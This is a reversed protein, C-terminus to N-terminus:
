DSESSNNFATVLFNNAADQSLTTAISFSTAGGNLQQTHLISEGSISGDNNADSYVRVLANAEATGVISFTAQNVTTAAAPSTVTPAATNDNDAITITTTSPAGITVGTLTSTLTATFNESSEVDSDDDITISFTLEDSNSATTPFSQTSNVLATYDDPATATGNSTNIVAPIAVELGGAPINSIAAEIDATGGGESVSYTAQDFSITVSENDTITVTASSPSGINVGSQSSTLDATFAHDSEFVNDDLIPINANTQSGNSASTLFSGNVAGATYDNGATATGDSPTVTFNVVVELGGSPVNSLVTNVSANGANENVGFSASQLSVTVTENDTIAINQATTSGLTIGSSPNSITLTATESGEFVDDDIITYTISGTTAGNLITISNASLTGDGATINTGSAAINVTQNGSVASSATATVTIVTGAAETGTNTSVSLNVEPPVSVNITATETTGATDDSLVYTATRASTGPTSSLSRYAIARVLTQVRANTANSNFNITLLDGNTIIGDNATGSSESITGFITGGDQVNAGSITLGTQSISIEDNAENNATIQVTLSGGNWNGETDSASASGDIQVPNGSNQGATYSFDAVTVTPATNTPAASVQKLVFAQQVWSAGTSGFTYASTHSTGTAIKYGAEEFGGSGLMLDVLDSGVTANFVNIPSFFSVLADGVGLTLAFSTSTETQMGNCSGNTDPKADSGTNGIPNTQDVGAFSLGVLAFVAGTGTVEISATSSSASSGFPLYMSIVRVDQSGCDREADM